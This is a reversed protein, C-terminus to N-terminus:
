VTCFVAFNSTDYIYFGPYLAETFRNEFTYLHNLTDSSVQYFSLTGSQWDLYVGIKNCGAPLTAQWKKSNSHWARLVDGNVGFYWSVNNYGFGTYRGSGKRPISEYALGVGLEKTNESSWIVEFYHCGTLRERCLVQPYSDFRKETKSYKERPGCTAKKDGASLTLHGNVTEPDLTLDCSYWMLDQKDTVNRVRHIAPKTFDKTKLVGKRYHYITAGTFEENPLAAVLFHFRSSSRLGKATESIMNANEKINELVEDSFFWQDKAPLTVFNPTEKFYSAMQDMYADSMEISTFVFCLANEVSLVERDLDSKEPIIKIGKMINLCSAIVNIERDLNDLWMNLNKKSFPSNEQEDLFNELSEEEEEEGERILPIKEQMTQQITKMYDACLDQFSKLKNHLQPFTKVVDGELSENCRMQIERIGEWVNEAKRLVVDSISGKLQAAASDLNKLPSLWIKVPVSKEGDKGLLGPLNRYTDAAEEFTTPNRELIFDGYFKCSVKEMVNTEAEKLNRVMNGEPDLKPIKKILSQMSGEMSLLSSSDLRESDFVFFANAGYLIGTVVHTAHSYKIVDRAQLKKADQHNMDLREYATTAKYHLIVRSQNKYEKKDNLYNASAGIDILGSLVSATLSEDAKLLSTKAAITDSAITEYHSSNQTKRTTFKKITERDWLTFDTILQDLRADYLMGLAFPRGLAAVHIQESDM